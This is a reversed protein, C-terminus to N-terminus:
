PSAVITDVLEGVQEFPVDRSLTTIAVLALEAPSEEGAGGEPAEGAGGEPASPELETQSVETETVTVTLSM